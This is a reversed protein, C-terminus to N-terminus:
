LSSLFRVGNGVNLLRKERKAHKRGNNKKQKFRNTVKTQKQKNNQMNVLKVHKREKMEFCSLAAHRRKFFTGNNEKTIVRKM